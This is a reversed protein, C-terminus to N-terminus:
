AQVVDLLRMPMSSWRTPCRRRATWTMGPFSGSRDPAEFEVEGHPGVSPHSWEPAPIGGPQRQLLYVRNADFGGGLIEDLGEIGSSM